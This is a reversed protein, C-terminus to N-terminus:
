GGFVDDAGICATTPIIQGVANSLADLAETGSTATSDIVVEIAPSRGFTTFVFNPDESDDRLWDVGDVTFCPLPSPGTEELGCRTIVAAPNGWAATSQANTSRRELQGIADPLRVMFAACDPDNALEAPQLPVTASCGSLAAAVALSTIFFRTRM